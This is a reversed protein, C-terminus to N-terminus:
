EEDQTTIRWVETPKSRYANLDVSKLEPICSYDITGQRISKSIKIGHGKSPKNDCLAILAERADKERLEFEKRKSQAEKYIEVLMRYEKSDLEQFKEDKSEPSLFNMLDDYFAKEKIIMNEIFSIDPLVDITIRDGENLYSHYYCVESGSVWLQHQIQAYYYPPIIGDVALQHNKEGNCKIELLEGKSNMGDLSAMAWQNEHILVVPKFDSHREKNFSDRILPELEVGRKMAENQFSKFNLSTKEEYLNKINKWPNVDLIVSADTATIHNKRLSLWEQSGQEINDLIKYNM